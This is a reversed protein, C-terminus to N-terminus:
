SKNKWLFKLRAGVIKSLSSNESEVFNESDKWVYWNPKLSKKNKRIQSFILSPSSFALRYKKEQFRKHRSIFNKKLKKYFKGNKRFFINHTIYFRYQHLLHIVKSRIEPWLVLNLKAKVYGWISSSPLLRILFFQYNMDFNNKRRISILLDEFNLSIRRKEDFSAKIM